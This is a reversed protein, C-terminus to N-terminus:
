SDMQCVELVKKIRCFFTHNNIVENYVATKMNEYSEYSPLIKEILEFLQEQSSYLLVQDSTFNDEIFGHRDCLQLAKAGSLEFFRQNVGYVSQSHHINICIKAQSYKINLQSPQLTKNTFSKKDKRFLFRKLNRLKSFYVGYIKINKDPFRECIRKLLKIRDDYLAGVFLIDIPKHKNELPYYVSEDLALPLFHADINYQIKLVPIDEKEFLFIHRYLDINKFTKEVRFISDMMWLVILTGQMHMLTARNIVSGRIVFVIDPKFQNYQQILKRNFALEKKEFFKEKNSALNFEIKERLNEIGHEVWEMTTVQYDARKFADAISKSYGFFQPGAILIRKM